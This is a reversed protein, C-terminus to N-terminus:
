QKTARTNESNMIYRTDGRTPVLFGSTYIEIQESAPEIETMAILPAPTAILNVNAPFLWNVWGLVYTNPM